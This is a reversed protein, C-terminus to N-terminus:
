YSLCIVLLHSSESSAVLMYLKSSAVLMYSESSAVLM